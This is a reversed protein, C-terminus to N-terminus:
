LMSLTASNRVNTEVDRRATALVINELKLEVQQLLIDSNCELSASVV